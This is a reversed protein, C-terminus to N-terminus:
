RSLQRPEYEAEEDDSEGGFREGGRGSRGGSRPRNPTKQETLGPSSQGGTRPRNPKKQETLPSNSANEDSEEKLKEARRKLEQM